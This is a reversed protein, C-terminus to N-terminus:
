ELVVKTKFSEAASKVDLMYIGKAIHSLDMEFANSREIAPHSESLMVRGAMDTLQMIFVSAEKADFTLSIM